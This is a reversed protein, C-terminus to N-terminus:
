DCMKIYYNTFSWKRWWLHNFSSCHGCAADADSWAFKCVCHLHIMVTAMRRPYARQLNIGNNQFLTGIWRCIYLYIWKFRIGYPRGCPYSAVRFSQHAIFHPKCRALVLTAIAPGFFLFGATHTHPRQIIITPGVFPGTGIAIMIDVSLHTNNMLYANTDMAPMRTIWWYRTKIVSLAFPEAQSVNFQMQKRWSLLQVLRTARVFTSVAHTHTHSRCISHFLTFTFFSSWINQALVICLSLEMSYCENTQRYVWCNVDIHTTRTCIYANM